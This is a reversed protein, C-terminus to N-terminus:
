ADPEVNGQESAAGSRRLAERAARREDEAARQEALTPVRSSPGDPRQNQNAPNEDPFQEFYDSWEGM